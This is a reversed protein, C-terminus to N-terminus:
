LESIIFTNANVLFNYLLLVGETYFSNKVRKVMLISYIMDFLFGLVRGLGSFVAVGRREFLLNSSALSVRCNKPM